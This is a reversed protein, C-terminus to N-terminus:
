KEILEGVKRMIYDAEAKWVSQGSVHPQGIKSYLEESKIPEGFHIVIRRKRLFFDLPSMNYVGSISVPVITSPASHALFSIGGKAPRLKGDKTIGGEPFVCFSGGDRLIAIHDELSKEYDRLGVIASYGGWMKIFWDNFLHKRWGVNVYFSKDRVAYFLPSFRSFFPLSAPVMFPDIESSHNVAFIVPGTIGVLNQRGKITLRGFLILAVRTPIWIIKQCLVPLIFYSKM